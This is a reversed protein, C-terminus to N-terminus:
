VGNRIKRYMRKGRGSYDLSCFDSLDNYDGDPGFVTDFFAMGMFCIFYAVYMPNRSFRYIGNINLGTDDPSSFNVMSAACLCLGTLYLVTGVYFQWSFDLKVTLFFLYIFLVINSIQYIYYATKERGQMPAFHAARQVAKKDLASLLLFRVVLFPVLLLISNM